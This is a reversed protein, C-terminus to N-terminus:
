AYAHDKFVERGWQDYATRLVRRARDAHGYQRRDIAERQLEHLRNLRHTWQLRRAPSM